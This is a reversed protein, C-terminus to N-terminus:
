PRAVIWLTHPMAREMRQRGELMKLGWAIRHEYFTRVRRYDVERAYKSPELRDLKERYAEIAKLIRQRRREHANM